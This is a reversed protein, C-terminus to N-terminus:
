RAIPTTARADANPVPSGRRESPQPTRRSMETVVLHPTTLAALGIFVVQTALAASPEFSLWLGLGVVLPVVSASALLARDERRVRLTALHRPSHWFVFYIAFSVLPDVIAVVAILAILDLAVDARGATVHWGISVGAAAVSPVVILLGITLVIGPTFAPRGLALPELLTAARSSHVALPFGIVLGAGAAGHSAAISRPAAVHRADGTAFHFWSALFFTVVALHPQIFWILITAFILAVYCVFFVYRRRARRGIIADYAGHPMGVSAAVAVIAIAVAGNPRWGAVTAIVAIVAGTLSTRSRRRETATSDREAREASHVVTL